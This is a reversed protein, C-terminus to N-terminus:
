TLHKGHFQLTLIAVTVSCRTPCRPLWTSKNICKIFALVGKEYVRPIGAENAAGMGFNLQKYAEWEYSDCEHRWSRCLQRKAADLSQSTIFTLPRNSIKMAVHQGGGTCCGHDKRLCSFASAFGGSGLIGHIKYVAHSTIYETHAACDKIEPEVTTAALASATPKDYKLEPHQDIDMDSDNASMKADILAAGPDEIRGMNM